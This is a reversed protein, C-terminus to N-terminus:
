EECVKGRWYEADLADLFNSSLNFAIAPVQVYLVNSLKFKDSSNTYKM